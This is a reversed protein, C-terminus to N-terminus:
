VLCFMWRAVFWLLIGAVVGGTDWVLDILGIGYGPKGLLKASYSTDTQGAEYAAAIGVSFIFALSATLWASFPFIVAYMVCSFFALVVSAKGHLWKDPSTWDRDPDIFDRLKM